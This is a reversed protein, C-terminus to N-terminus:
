KTGPESPVGGLQQFAQQAYVQPKVQEIASMRLHDDLHQRIKEKIKNSLGTWQSSAIFKNVVESHIAHNEGINVVVEEGNMLKKLEDWQRTRGSQQIEFISALDATGLVHLLEDRHAQPNFLGTEILMQVRQERAARSMSERGFTKVRVKFYDGENRGILDSGTFSITELQNFEGTVQIIRDNDTFQRLTQLILKGVRSLSGDFDQLTPGLVSDDADQLALVARGSRIGPEAKAESVDHSSSTDQIDLRTRDLMQSMYAPIPRPTVQEPKFPHNFNIVGGPKNNFSSIGSQRPNLWQINSMLNMQEAIQSRNRNYFAQNPRIQEAVCTGWVSVPDVIETFQAYPLEGHDYPNDSPKVIFKDDAIIAHLGRKYTRSKKVFLEHVLVGKNTMDSRDHPHLHPHLFIESHKAEKLDKFKNGYTDVIYDTSRLQSEICWTAEEFMSIDHPLTINFPSVVDVFINGTPLKVEEELDVGFQELVQDVLDKDIDSKKVTIETGANVDWGIKLFSSCCTSMWYTARILKKTMDVQQWVDRLIKTSTNAIQIDEEDPTAPIADWVPSFHVIKAVNKRVLPLMLNSVLRLRWPSRSQTVFQRVDKDFDVNQFGRVWALNLAWSRHYEAMYKKRESVQDLIFDKVSEKKKKVEFLNM